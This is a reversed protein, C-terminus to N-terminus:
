RAERAVLEYIEATARAVADWDFRARLAEADVAYRAPVAALGAALAAVDRVPFYNTAPLGLDRNAPIDSLLMPAGCGGAELAAIPLGEHLSPMVFLACNRYLCELTARSQRGAFVVGDDVKAALARAYPTEHDAGGVIALVPPNALRARAALLDDFGKEPVLRGVGLLFQGAKLGLERLVTADDTEGRALRPAGNPIHAVKAARAPFRMRLDQALSPSVAIVRHAALMGLREGLRLFAKAVRGWKGRAYDAGHHTVVVRLGLLRALPALLAPGIAHIHIIRANAKRAHLVAILTATVAEFSQSRPAPLPVTRVGRFVAVGRDVYPARGLVTLDLGPRDRKIRPLLEECHSEVGGMVGPIGRLGTVFVRM